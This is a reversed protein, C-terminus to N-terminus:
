MFSGSKRRRYHLFSGVLGLVWIGSVWVAKESFNGNEVYSEWLLVFPVITFLILVIVTLARFVAPKILFNGVYPDGIFRTIQTFDAFDGLFEDWEAFRTGTAEEEKVYNLYYDVECEKIVGNELVKQCLSISGELMEKQKELEELQKKLAEELALKEQIIMSITDISLNMKRYLTIQKLRRLDAETYERYKNEAERAPEILGKKEYFRINSISLGTLESIEGIRM